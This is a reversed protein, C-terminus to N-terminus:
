EPPTNETQTFDILAYMDALTLTVGVSPLHVMSELGTVIRTEWHDGSRSHLIARATDQAVLLYDALPLITQYHAFKDGFDYHATSKSLVEVILIPNTIADSRGERFQVPGCVVSVDPYTNIGDATHVKLDSGFVRCGKSVLANGLARILNGAIASHDPTGGSMARIVGMRTGDAQPPGVPTFEWREEATQSFKFYEDETYFTKSAYQQQLVM